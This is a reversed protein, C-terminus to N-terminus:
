PGGIMPVTGGAAHSYEEMDSHFTQTKGGDIKLDSMAGASSNAGLQGQNTKRFKDFQQKKKGGGLPNENHNSGESANDSIKSM